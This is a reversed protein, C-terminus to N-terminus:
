GFEGWQKIPLTHAPRRGTVKADGLPPAIRGRSLRQIRPIRRHEAEIQGLKTAWCEGDLGAGTAVTVRRPRLREVVAAVELGEAVADRCDIEIRREVRVGSAIDAILPTAPIVLLDIASRSTAM